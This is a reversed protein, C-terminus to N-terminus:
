QKYELFHPSVAGDLVDMIRQQTFAHELGEDLYWWEDPMTDLAEELSLKAEICCDQWYKRNIFDGSINSWQDSFVHTALFDDSIFDDDFALNHDIVVLNDAATDWLLNPNGGLETLTRDANRVWWDFVLLRQQLDVPVRHKLSWNLEVVGSVARSGFALGAGIGQWHAPLAFHLADPIEVIRQEAVPLGFAKALRGTVWECIQSKRSADRGKVYYTHGDEGKCRFPKTYGQKTRDIVEKVVVVESNIM